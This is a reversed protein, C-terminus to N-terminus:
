LPRVRVPPDDEQATVRRHAQAAALRQVIHDVLRDLRTTREPEGYLWGWMFGLHADMAKALADLAVFVLVSLLTLGLLTETYPAVFTLALGALLAMALHRQVRLTRIREREAIWLRADTITSSVNLVM